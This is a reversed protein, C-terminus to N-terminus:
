AAAVDKQGTLVVREPPDATMQAATIAVARASTQLGTM